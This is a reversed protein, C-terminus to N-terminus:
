PDAKTSTPHQPGTWNRLTDGSSRLTDGSSWFECCSGPRGSRDDRFSLIRRGVRKLGVHLGCGNWM